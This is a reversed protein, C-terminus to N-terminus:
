NLIFPEKLRFIIKRKNENKLYLSLFVFYIFIITLKKIPNLFFITVLRFLWSKKVM